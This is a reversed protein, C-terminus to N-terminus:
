ELLNQYLDISPDSSNILLNLKDMTQNYFGNEKALRITEDCDLEFLNDVVNYYFDSNILGFFHKVADEFTMIPYNELICNEDTYSGNKDEWQFFYTLKVRISEQDNM